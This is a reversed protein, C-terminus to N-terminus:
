TSTNATTATVSGNVPVTESALLRAVTGLLVDSKFPRALFADAFAHAAREANAAAGSVALVRLRRNMRRFISVLTQGSFDPLDVDTIVLRYDDPRKAFDALAQVGDRAPSARYGRGNLITVTATNVAPDSVVVLVEEGNGRPSAEARATPTPVAGAAAPLYVTFRTGRGVATDLMIFGRNNEVLGRVTSLGLGTGKGDGKTTFFPDWIRQVVDPAIGSGTDEVHIAVWAGPRGQSIAEVATADLTLNEAALRLEGSGSMADRANICLNLLVQHLQTPSAQIPWLDGPANLELHITKPFTQGIFDALDRLVHNPQVIRTEASGHAFSLIQRVLATGREASKELVELIQADRPDPMRERLLAPAMLMPALVNNLDHAIGAALMGLSELRQARFVQEKLRNRETVDTSISIRAKARGQDDKVLSVRTDLTVDRGAKNKLHIEGCWEEHAAVYRRVEHIASLTTADVYPDISRGLMEDPQWGLIRAAGDNWYVIHNELDSVVIADRARDLLEKQERIRVEAAARRRGEERKTIAHKIATILRLPREKLVYDAAGDRVAEIATEERITGSFFIFPTDPAWERTLHLAELGSFAILSFDSLIVDYQQRGIANLFAEKADVVDVTCSPWEVCLFERVLEADTRSDELHLINM